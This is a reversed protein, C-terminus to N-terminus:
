SQSRARLQTRVEALEREIHGLRRWLVFIYVILAAWVFAYAAFVLPTAPLTEQQEGPRFPVMGEPVQAVLPVIAALVVAIVALLVGYKGPRTRWSTPTKRWRFKMTKTGLVERDNHNM